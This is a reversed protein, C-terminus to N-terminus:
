FTFHSITTPIPIIKLPIWKVCTNHIRVYAYVKSILAIKKKKLTLSKNGAKCMGTLSIIIIMIVKECTHLRSHHDDSNVKPLAVDAPM